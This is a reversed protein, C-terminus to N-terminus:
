TRVDLRFSKEGGEWAGVENWPHNPELIDADNEQRSKWWGIIVKQSTGAWGKQYLYLWVKIKAIAAEPLSVCGGDTIILLNWYRRRQLLLCYVCLVNSQINSAIYIDARFLWCKHPFLHKSLANYPRMYIYLYRPIFILNSGVSSLVIWRWNLSACM